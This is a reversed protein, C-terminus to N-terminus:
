QKAGYKEQLLRIVAEAQDMEAGYQLWNGESLAKRAASFHDTLRQIVEGIEAQNLDTVPIQEVVRQESPSLQGGLVAAIASSVATDMVVNGGYSLIVRKLEPLDRQEAKLYVPEAYLISNAIPIVLLNGRIISSGRQDWLSFQQSIMTDQDIRAEIQSPGYILKDKPFKYVLLEGYHDRDCRAAMWAIMNDKNKLTLPIMQIFEVNTEGPLKMQIYYPEVSVTKGSYNENPITWVDEKNYFVKPDQMHYTNYKVMQISFVDRPYRLHAQLDAPMADMNKFIKPFIKQYTQALPDTTDSVYFTVNGDYADVVIKISNRIYNITKGKYSIPDAYPYRASMTYADQIWFIRGASLVIYPDRDLEIFPAIHQIRQQINRRFMIRSNKTTASTMLINGDRFGWAFLARRFLSGIWVGGQGSYSVYKNEDGAAYHFEPNKTNVIVYDNIEANVAPAQYPQNPVPTPQGSVSEGFYISPEEVPLNVSSVPPIDKVFLEPLGEPTLSNVPNMVLGYGHTFTLRTNVWTQSPIKERELERPALMVQRVSGNLAYRDEDVNYFTYYTRISQIQQYTNLLPRADWLRINNITETNQQIDAMTLTDEAPFSKVAVDSLGYAQNTMAINYEIFRREKELENPKVIMQQVIGPLIGQLVAILPLTVILAIVIWLVRDKSSFMGSVTFAALALMYFFLIWLAALQVHYDTYGAGFVVGQPAYLLNYMQLRYDWAKLLLGVAILGYLHFKVPKSFAISRELRTFMGGGWYMVASGLFSLIILSMLWGRFIRHVPLAFIYFGIDHQFLPDTKGFPTQHFYRLWLEWQPAMALGAFIAVIATVIGILWPMHQSGKGTLQKLPETYEGLDFPFVSDRGQNPGTHKVIRYAQFFNGFLVAFGLVTFLAFYLMWSLRMTWFVSTVNLSRFWLYDIIVDAFMTIGVLIVAVLLILLWLSSRLQRSSKM